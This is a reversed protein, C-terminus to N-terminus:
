QGHAKLMKLAKKRSSIRRVRSMNRALNMNESALGTSTNFYKATHELKHDRNKSKMVCHYLYMVRVRGQWTKCSSYKERYTMKLNLDM